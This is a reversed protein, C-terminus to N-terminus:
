GLLQVTNARELARETAEDLDEVELGLAENALGKEEINGVGDEFFVRTYMMKAYGVRNGEKMEKIGKEYRERASEKSSTRQWARARERM